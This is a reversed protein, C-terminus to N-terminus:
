FAFPLAQSKLHVTESMEIAGSYLGSVLFQSRHLATIM